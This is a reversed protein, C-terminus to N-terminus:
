KSQYYKKLKTALGSLYTVDQKENLVIQLKEELKIALANFFDVNNLDLKSNNIIKLKSIVNNLLEEKREPNDNLISNIKNLVLSVKKGLVIQENLYTFSIHNDNIKWWLILIEDWNEQIWKIVNEYPYKYFAGKSTGPDFTIFNSEDYWVLNIVHYSNTLLNYNPNALTKTYSPVIIIYDKSLLYKLTEKSPNSIIHSNEDDYWYYIKALNHIEEITIDRLYLKGSEKNHIKNREIWLVNEQYNNLDDIEEDAKYKDFDIKNINFHSLIIAAEECSEYNKGWNVKTALPAQPFFKIDNITHSSEYNYDWVYHNFM